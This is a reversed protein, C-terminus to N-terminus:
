QFSYAYSVGLFNVSYNPSQENTPVVRNPTYGYQYGNYYFDDSKLNQYLYVLAIRSHKDVKYSGTLKFAVLKTKIDPTDGCTLTGPASCTSLYPVQTAYHSKDLSYSLDGLMELKGGMFAHKTNLGVSTSDQKLQNSWINAVGGAGQARLDRESQQWSAYASVSGNESYSYTADLNLSVTQGDQVGLAAEYEDKSFRGTLGLDLQETAQWNVGGKVINQKRSAYPHAVFGAYDGGNLATHNNGALVVPATVAYSGTNALYNQTLDTRRDAYAYGVNLKVSDGAKLRYTLGIKDEDSSPSALCQAGGVVNNCWRKIYEHEYALRLSQTKSLRYDGALELQAKKNSYPTNVGTYGTAGLDLYRYTNSSTQNDRENYKFGASLMLDKTTQNTLKVNAHTTVVSGDLSSQPLGGAQMMNYTSGNAQLSATPGFAENQRNRAYSLGGVLKTSSSFNYGGSLNLQHFSNDPATSMTNNTYCATGVCGSAGSTMANQWSVSNYGDRFISGYYGGTLFGKEGVWNLALNFTDTTYNTPNMLINVAEARGTSGGTLNIGGQSGTGILKAGSQDLHNYDFRLTLQPSFHFGAGFSTNKRTTGVEETHFASLQNATLVRASPQGTAGNIQGFNTPLTFNNGGMSGQLPTQYTDSVNHRLEDYGINLDWRGQNSVSAGFERSTTGLDRGNIDWRLTGNGGEYADYASGGGINFNGIAVAGSDNLGNYEGFKASKQSVNAVGVEISSTPRTLVSVEDDAAMAMMPMTFMAALASQVALSLVSVQLKENRTKM